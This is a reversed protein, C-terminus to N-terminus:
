VRRRKPPRCGNHPVPTVDQITGVELGAAQLERHLSEAAEAVAPDHKPNIVCVAVQWPAMADPWRIGAEDHNQEIAAAVIRSIGIGYCGMQLVRPKGQEDLVTCGMDAAYDLSVLDHAYRAGLSQVQGADEAGAAPLTVGGPVIVGPLTGCGALALMTAPLGKDCTAVGLVGRRTPLSRILRRFIIAADNRYALSDFMATTGQSRGDCPDTVFGAYPITGNAKFEQAAAQMLLGVEWHGTHYGLAIPTGDQARIGGQTSLMLFEPQRLSRPDPIASGGDVCFSYRGDGPQASVQWWGDEAPEMPVRSAGDAGLRLEFCRHGFVRRTPDHHAVLFEDAGLRLPRALLALIRDGAPLGFATNVHRFNDLDVFYM